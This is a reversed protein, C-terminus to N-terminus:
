VDCKPVYAPFSKVLRNIFQQTARDSVFGGKVSLRWIRFRRFM